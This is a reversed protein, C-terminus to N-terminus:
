AHAAKDKSYDCASNRSASEKEKIETMVSTLRMEAQKIQTQAASIENKWAIKQAALTQDQGDASFSLGASVVQFHNPATTVAEEMESVRRM